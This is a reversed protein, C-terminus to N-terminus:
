KKNKFFIHFISFFPKTQPVVLEVIEEVVNDETKSDKEIHIIRHEYYQLLADHVQINKECNLIREELEKSLHELEIIRKPIGCCPLYFCM